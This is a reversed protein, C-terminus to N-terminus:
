KMSMGGDNELSTGGAVICPHGVLQVAHLDWWGHQVSTGSSCLMTGWGADPEMPKGPSLSPSLLDLRVMPFASKLM